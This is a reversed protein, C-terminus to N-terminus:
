KKLVFEVRRNNAKEEATANGNLPVTEGRGIAELRENSVGKETLAQRVAEARKQSLELNYTDEGDSDTHGEIIFNWEPNDELVEVMKKIVGASQPKITAQNVDFLIGHTVYKGDAMIRDYLKNGGKAIKVNKIALIKDEANIGESESNHFDGDLYLNKPTIELNPINLVKIENIYFKLARKNFSLACHYWGPLLPLKIGDRKYASGLRVNGERSRFTMYITEARAGEKLRIKLNTWSNTPIVGKDLYLDFEFTFVDPLYNEQKFLPEITTGSSNQLLVIKEGGLKAVEASGKVLDWRSPFEGMEETKQDDWFMVQDGPVFDYKTWVELLSQSNSSVTTQTTTDSQDATQTTERNEPSSDEDGKPKKKVGDEVEDLGQDITKDIKREARNEVKREVKRKLRDLIQAQASISTFSIAVTTIITLSIKIM